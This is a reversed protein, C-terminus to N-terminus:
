HIFDEMKRDAIISHIDGSDGAKKGDADIYFSKTRYEAIVGSKNLLKVKLNEYGDENGLEEFVILDFILEDVLPLNESFAFSSPPTAVKFSVPLNGPCYVNNVFLRNEGEYEFRKYGSLGVIDCTGSFQLDLTQDVFSLEAIDVQLLELTSKPAAADYSGKYSINDVDLRYSFDYEDFLDTPYFLSLESTNYGSTRALGVYRINENPLWTDGKVFTAQFDLSYTQQNMETLEDFAFESTGGVAVSEIYGYKPKNSQSSEDVISVFLDSTESIMGAHYTGEMDFWSAGWLYRGSLGVPMSRDHGTLVVNHQGVVTPNTRPFPKDLHYSGPLFDLYSAIYVSSNDIYSYFNIAVPTGYAYGDPTEMKQEGEVKLDAVGLVNGEYDSLYVYDANSSSTYGAGSTFSFFYNMVRVDIDKVATNGTQDSVEIKIKSMGEDMTKTDWSYDLTGNESTAVSTGNISLKISSIVDNDTASVTIPFTGKVYEGFDSITIEPSTTDPPQVEDDDCSSLFFCLLFALAPWRLSNNM